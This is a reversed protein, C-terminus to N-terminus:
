AWKKGKNTLTQKKEWHVCKIGLIKDSTMGLFKGVVKAMAPIRVWTMLTAGFLSRKFSARGVSSGRRPQRLKHIPNFWHENLLVASAERHGVIAMLRSERCYISRHKCPFSNLFSLNFRSIMLISPIM